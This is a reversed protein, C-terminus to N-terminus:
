VLGLGELLSGLLGGGDGADYKEKAKEALTQVLASPPKTPDAIDISGIYGASNGSAKAEAALLVTAAMALDNLDAADIFANFAATELAPDPVLGSLAAATEALNPMANIAGVLMDTAQDPDGVGSIDEISNLLSSGLDVANVGAKLGEARLSAAAEPGARDAAARIKRLVELSLAPDNEAKRILDRVNGTTVEPILSSPDRQAWSALSTSFLDTCSSMYLVPLIVASVAVRFGPSLRNKKMPYEECSRKPNNWLGTQKPVVENEKLYIM